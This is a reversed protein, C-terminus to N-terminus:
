ITLIFCTNGQKDKQRKKNRDDSKRAGGVCLLIRSKKTVFQLNEIKDIHLTALGTKRGQGPIGFHGFRGAPKRAICNFGQPGVVAAMSIRQSAVRALPNM